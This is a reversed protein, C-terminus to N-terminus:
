DVRTSPILDKSSVDSQICLFYHNRRCSTRVKDSWWGIYSLRFSRRSAKLKSSQAKLFICEIILNLPGFSVCRLIRETGFVVAGEEKRKAIGFLWGVM